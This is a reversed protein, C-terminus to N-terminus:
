VTIKKELAENSIPKTLVEKAGAKLAKEEISGDALGTILYFTLDPKILKAQELIDLGANDTDLRLDCFIIDPLENKLICLADTKNSATFVQHKRRSFFAKQFELVDPEDDVIM